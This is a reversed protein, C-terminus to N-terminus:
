AYSRSATAGVSDADTPGAEIIAGGGRRETPQRGVVADRVAALVTKPGLGCKNNEDADAAASPTADGRGNGAPAARTRGTESRSARGVALRTRPKRRDREDANECVRKRWRHQKEAKKKRREEEEEEAEGNEKWRKKIEVRAVRTEDKDICRGGLGM